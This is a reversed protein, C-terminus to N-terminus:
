QPYYVLRISCWYDEDIWDTGPEEKDEFWLAAASESSETYFASWYEGEFPWTIKSKGNDGYGAIPLFVAGDFEMDDWQEITFVNQSCKEAGYVFSSYTRTNWADPLLILGKVNNVTGMGYLLKGSIGVTSTRALLTGYDDFGIVVFKNAQGEINFNPNPKYRDRDTNNQLNTFLRGRMYGPGTQSVATAVDNGWFFHGRHSPNWDTTSAIWQEDEFHFESGDYWLNGHTFYITRYGVGTAYVTFAGSGVLPKVRDVVVQYAGNAAVGAALGKTITKIVSGTVDYIDIKVNKSGTDGAFAYQPVSFCFLSYKDKDLKVGEGLNITLTSTGGTMSSSEIEGNGDVTVTLTGNLKKNSLDTLVIKQITASGKLDLLITSMANHFQLHKGDDSKGVMPANHKQVSIIQGGESPVAATEAVYSITAPVTFTFTNTGNFTGGAPYAAFYPLGGAPVEGQFHATTEGMGKSIVFENGSTGGNGFLTFKEGNSWKVKVGEEYPSLFTKTNGVGSQDIDAGITMMEGEAPLNENKEKKCSTGGWALAMLCLAMLIIRTDKM